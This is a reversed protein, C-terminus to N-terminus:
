RPINLEKGVTLDFEKMDNAEMLQQLTINYKRAIGYLTEGAQVVHIISKVKDSPQKVDPKKVILEQGPKLGNDGLNNWKKLDDVTVNYSRSIGYLTEGAQVTHKQASNTNKPLNTSEVEVWRVDSEQGNKSAEGVQELASNETNEESEDQPNGSEEHGTQAEIDAGAPQQAVDADVSETVEEYTDEEQSPPTNKSITHEQLGTNESIKNVVPRDIPRTEEGANEVEVNKVNRYQVPEDSPRTFRMWLVRGTKLPVPERERNKRLLSKERIGYKQSISWWTEGPLVVHQYVPAKGKKRKFYYVQGPEIPTTASMDNYRLFRNESIGGLLSLSEITAGSGAVAADRGNAELRVSTSSASTRDYGELKPFAGPDDKGFRSDSFRSKMDVKPRAPRSVDAIVRSPKDRMPLIVAYVKDDPVKGRSLWKNYEEVLNDDVGTERGIDKLSKGAGRTYEVLQYPPKSKYLEDQYAIKHALFKLIYWHDKKTITYKDSGYYKENALKMAGGAGQHYSLLAYVWNDFYNNNRKLYRAAGRTASVINKREDVPGSIRLGVEEASPKKFQWFGVADSSSIADSVLSSEQIVLFKFDEPLGEERFIREIIPFYMNVRELKMDLYRRNRHIADVDSQITRRAADNIRLDM